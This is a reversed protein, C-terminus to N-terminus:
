SRRYKRIPRIFYHGIFGGIRKMGLEQRIYNELRTLPCKLERSCTILLIFSCIPLAEYWPSLIPALFFAAFNGIIVMMHFAVLFYFFYLSRKPPPSEKMIERYEEETVGLWDLKSLDFSPDQEALINWENELNSLFEPSLVDVLNVGSMRKLMFISSRVSYNETVLAVDTFLDKVLGGADEPSLYKTMVESIRAAEEHTTPM